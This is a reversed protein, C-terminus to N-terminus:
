ARLAPAVKVPELMELTISSELSDVVAREEAVTTARIDVVVATSNDQGGATNAFTVLSEAIEDPELLFLFEEMDRPDELYGWVGDSCLIFRDNPHIQFLMEDVEVSERVGVARALAHGQPVLPIEERTILGRRAFEEAVSHDVSLQRLKGHRELYLRSDGVHAMAAKDRGVLLVTLTCGMGATEPYECAHMFVHRCARAVAIGAISSLLSQSVQGARIRELLRAQARVYSVVSAVAERAAIDGAAHGGMGDAVIYLGLDNDVLLADENNSRHKGIDTFGIGRAKM